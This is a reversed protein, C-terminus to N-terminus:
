LGKAVARVVDTQSLVGVLVGKDEVFLRHVERSLMQEAAKRVDDDPSVTEPRVTMLEAVRTNNFLVNRGKEDGTEAAAQLVDSTTLVGVLLDSSDVVPLGSVHEDNMLAVADAISSDLPIVKLQSVMIESVKM